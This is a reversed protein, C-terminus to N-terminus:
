RAVARNDGRDKSRDSGVPGDLRPSAGRLVEYAVRNGYQASRSLSSYSLFHVGPPHKPSNPVNEQHYRNAAVDHLLAALAADGAGSTNVLQEPGGQYPHIHTHIRLPKECDRHRMLRSFEYRNYDPMSASRVTQRTQRKRAWDTFGGLTLGQRGQTIIVLDVWELIKQSALLVDDMGTLAEAEQANMAAISVYDALLRQLPDRMRRVLHATGLGFAVPVDANKAVELFRWTAAAIPADEDSLTYLSALAATAGAVVETPIHVDTYSNSNGPAVAFSRDGDPGVFTIATGINGPLAILHDLRVAKPTQAVYHFAADQPRLLEPIAGLLVAPEGSLHAYNNLTNAVTGGPAFCCAFGEGKIRAVLQRFADDNLVVSEGAVLGLDSAFSAPARVEMDVILQDLGVVYWGPHPKAEVVPADHTVPFYHKTIRQGPFDM